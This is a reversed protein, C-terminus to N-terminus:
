FPARGDERAMRRDVIVRGQHMEVVRDGLVQADDRDHTVYISTLRLARQLRAVEERLAVRLERDLSSFPEDLLLLRPRAVLARALALRQQEGGSLEHPHRVALADIRVLALIERARETREVTPMAAARTVFDLHERVTLHPWLALDQFVFGLGREHPPVLTRGARAVVRDGFRIEGAEPRELGAILRLLTTKGCGSPGVVVVSEGHGVELRVDEVAVHRGYRKTVDIVRLFASTM